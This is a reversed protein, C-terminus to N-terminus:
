LSEDWAGCTGGIEGDASQIDLEGADGVCDGGRRDASKAELEPPVVDCTDESLLLSGWSM